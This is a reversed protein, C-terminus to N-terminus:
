AAAGILSRFYDFFGAPQATEHPEPVAKAAPAAAAAKKDARKKALAAKRDSKAKAKAAAKQASIEAREAEASEADGAAINAGDEAGFLGSYYDLLIGYNNSRLKTDRAYTSTVQLSFHTNKKVGTSSM